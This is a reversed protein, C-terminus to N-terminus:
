LPYESLDIQLKALDVAAKYAQAHKNDGHVTEVAKLLEDTNGRFCGCKVGITHHKTRFFTTFDDRSGLPGAVVYHSMKFIQANGYVQADGSVLADGYVRADGSVWADGSVLANGYVQANGSVRADGSVRANGSVRADGYVRANGSVLADGYVQADGSVWADGSQDLNGEKEVFGGLEGEEVNEFAVLAKIRFLTRGFKVISEATLEYKKM